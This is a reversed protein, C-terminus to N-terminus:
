NANKFFYIEKLGVHGIYIIWYIEKLGLEGVYISSM